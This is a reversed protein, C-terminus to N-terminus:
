NRVAIAVFEAFVNCHWTDVPRLDGSKAKAGSWDDSIAASQEEGAEGSLGGRPTMPSTASCPSGRVGRASRKHMRFSPKPDSESLGFGAASRRSDIKSRVECEDLKVEAYLRSASSKGRGIPPTTTIM